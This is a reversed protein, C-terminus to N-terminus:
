RNATPPRIAPHPKADIELVEYFPATVPWYAVIISRFQYCGLLVVVIVALLLLSFVARPQRQRRRAAPLRRAPPPEVRDEPDGASDREEDGADAAGSEVAAFTHVAPREPEQAWRHGCAGCQVTRGASGLAAPDILFRTSCNPCSLIM